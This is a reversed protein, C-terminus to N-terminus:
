MGVFSKNKMNSTHTVEMIHTAGSRCNRGATGRERQNRKPGEKHRNMTHGEGRYISCHIKNKIQNFDGSGYMDNDYCKEMDDIENRFCKKKLRGKQMKQMAMDPVCDPEDYLSWQSPDLLPEFRPECTKTGLNFHSIVNLLKPVKAYTERWDGWLLALAHEKARWVKDYHVRYTTLSHIVEILAAVTVDSNAWMIPM